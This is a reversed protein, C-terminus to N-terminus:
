PNPGGNPEGSPREASPATQADGLKRRTESPDIALVIAILTIQLCGLVVHAGSMTFNKEFDDALNAGLTYSVNLLAMYTTFQTAAVPPWCLGMFLAFMSVQLFGALATEAL